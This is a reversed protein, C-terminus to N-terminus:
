RNGFSYGGLGGSALRKETLYKPAKFGTHCPTRRFVLGYKSYTLQNRGRNEPEPLRRIGPPCASFSNTKRASRTYGILTTPERSATFPLRRPDHLVRDVAVPPCSRHRSEEPRRPQQHPHIPDHLLQAPAHHASGGLGGTGVREQYLSQRQQDTRFPM